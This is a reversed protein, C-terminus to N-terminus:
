PAVITIILRDEYDGAALAPSGDYSIRLERTLWDPGATDASDTVVATGNTWGAAPIGDYTLTYPLNAAGSTQALFPGTAGSGDAALNASTIRVEYGTDANSREHVTAILRATVQTTLDMTRIGPEQVAFLDVLRAMRATVSVTAQHRLVHTGADAPDGEYLRLEFMDTYTGSPKFQEQPIRFYVTYVETRATASATDFHNSTIVNASSFTPAGPAALVPTEGDPLLPYLQYALEADPSTRSARRDAYTGGGATAGLFWQPVAVGQHEVAIEVGVLTTQEFSANGYIAGPPASLRFIDQAYVSAVAVILFIAIALIAPSLARPSSNNRM